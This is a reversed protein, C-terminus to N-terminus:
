IAGPSNAFFLATSTSRMTPIARPSPRSIAVGSSARSEPQAGATLRAVRDEHSSSATVRRSAHPWGTRSRKRLEESSRLVLICFALEPSRREVHGDDPEAAVIEAATDIKRRRLADHVLRDVEADVQDVGRVAVAVFATRFLRESANETVLALLDHECGLEAQRHVIRALQATRRPTVDHMRDLRAQLPQAGVPDVEVLQVPWILLRRDLLRQAREVIEHPLALHAVDAARVKRRLLHDRRLVRRAPVAERGEDGALVLVAQQHAGDLALKKRSAFARPNPM